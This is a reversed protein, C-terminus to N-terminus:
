SMNTLEEQKEAKIFQMGVATVVSLGILIGGIVLKKSM